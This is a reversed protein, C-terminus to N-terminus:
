DSKLIVKLSDWEKKYVDKSAGDKATGWESAGSHYFAQVAKAAKEDGIIELHNVIAGLQYWHLKSTSKAARHVFTPDSYENVLRGYVLSKQELKHQYNYHFFSFLATLVAGVLGGFLAEKM